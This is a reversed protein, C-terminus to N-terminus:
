KKEEKEPDCKHVSARWCFCIESVSGIMYTCENKDEKFFICDKCYCKALPPEDFRHKYKYEWKLDAIKSSISEFVCYGIVALIVLFAIMGILAFIELIIDGSM